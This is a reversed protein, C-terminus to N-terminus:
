QAGGTSVADVDSAGRLVLARYDPRALMEHHPGDAVARGDVVLFVRDARDLLLPSSTTVLTTRGTRAARLRDAMAAETHTDVASTPEVALLVEPAGILARAM